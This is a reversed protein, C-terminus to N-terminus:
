TAYKGLTVKMGDGSTAEIRWLLPVIPKMASESKAQRGPAAVPHLSAQHRRRHLLRLRPHAKM